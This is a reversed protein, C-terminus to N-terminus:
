VCVMLIFLLMSIAAAIEQELMHGYRTVNLVNKHRGVSKVDPISYMSYSAWLARYAHVWISAGLEAGVHPHRSLLDRPFWCSM